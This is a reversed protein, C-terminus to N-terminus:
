KGSLREMEAEHAAWVEPHVTKMHDLVEQSVVGEYDEYTFSCNPCVYTKVLPQLEFKTPLMRTEHAVILNKM